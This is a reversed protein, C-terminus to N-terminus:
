CAPPQSSAAPSGTWPSTAGTGVARVHESVAAALRSDM